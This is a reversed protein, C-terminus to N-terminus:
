ASVEFATITSTGRAHYTVDNDSFNRNIGVTRSNVLSAVQLKYTTASTTNPSDLYHLAWPGDNCNVLDTSVRTRTGAADGLLIDTAGRLLRMGAHGSADTAGHGSAFVLIKSSTASPTITVSLGTVDVFSSSTTSFSDTKTTSVIQLVRFAGRLNNMQAATLVNGAVFTSPLSTPTAM